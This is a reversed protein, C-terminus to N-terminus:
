ETTDYMTDVPLKGHLHPNQQFRAQNQLLKQSGEASFARRPAVQVAPRAVAVVVRKVGMRVASSM